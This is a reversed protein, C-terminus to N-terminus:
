LPSTLRNAIGNKTREGNTPSGSSDLDKPALYLLEGRQLYPKNKNLLSRITRSKGYGQPSVPTQPTVLGSETIENAKDDTIIDDDETEYCYYESPGM